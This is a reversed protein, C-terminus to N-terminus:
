YPVYIYPDLTLPWPDMSVESDPPALILWHFAQIQDGHSSILMFIQGKAWSKCLSKLKPLNLSISSFIQCFNWLNGQCCTGGQIVFHAFFKLIPIIPFVFQLQRRFTRVWIFGPFSQQSRYLKASRYFNRIAFFEFLLIGSFGYGLAGYAARGQLYTELASVVLALVMLALGVAFAILSM